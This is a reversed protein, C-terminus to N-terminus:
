RYRNLLDSFRSIIEEYAAREEAAQGERGCSLAKNFLKQATNISNSNM